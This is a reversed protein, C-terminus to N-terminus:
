LLFSTRFMDLSSIFCFTRLCTSFSLLITELSNKWELTTLADDSHRDVCCNDVMNSTHNWKHSYCATAPSWTSTRICGNIPDSKITKCFKLRFRAFLSSIEEFKTQKMLYQSFMTSLHVHLFMTLFISSFGGIVARSYSKSKCRHIWKMEDGVMVYVTHLGTCQTQRM